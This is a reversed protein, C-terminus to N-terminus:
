AGATNPSTLASDRTSMTSPPTRTPQVAATTTTDLLSVTPTPLHQAVATETATAAPSRRHAGGCACFAVDVLLSSARLAALAAGLGLTAAM